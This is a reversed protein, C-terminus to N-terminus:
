FTYRAGIRLTRPEVVRSLRGEQPAADVSPIYSEYYYAIDKDTSDLVNLLEAYVQIGGADKGGPQWAGRLNVVTSGKDRVSGDEILPYPGLHRLRVSAEFRDLVASIGASAANEFANPIADGNDYRAHSATYNADLALWPFPRWFGVLEYGRRKSAGTPEVANSDGVFRLESGVDIWYYTATLTLHPRQFRMGLEKGTGRVLVPVPTERNAAGRVDNSHFGRGWNAYFEFQESPSYAAAFKPSVIADHGGGTGLDAAAADRARVDYDYYDGRVGGTLRLGALPTFAAEGYLAASAENVAFRGLSAVFAGADTNYVGVNGIHDYRNETGVTLQV